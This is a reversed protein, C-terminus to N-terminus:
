GNVVAVSETCLDPSLLCKLGRAEGEPASRHAMLVREFYARRTAAKKAEDGPQVYEANPFVCTLYSIWAGSFYVNRMEAAAQDLDELTLEAPAGKGCMACLAAMGVDALPFGTWDLLQGMEKREFDTPYTAGKLEPSGGFAFVM